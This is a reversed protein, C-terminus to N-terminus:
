LVQLNAPIMLAIMM